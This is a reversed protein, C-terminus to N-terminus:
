KKMVKWQRKSTRIHRYRFLWKAFLFVCVKRKYGNAKVVHSKFHLRNSSSRANRTGRRHVHCTGRFHQCGKRLNRPMACWFNTVKPFNYNVLIQFTSPLLHLRSTTDHRDIREDSHKTDSNWTPHRCHFVFLQQIANVCTCGGGKRQQSCNARVFNL